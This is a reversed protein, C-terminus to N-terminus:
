VSEPEADGTTDATMREDIDLKEQVDSLDTELETIKETLMTQKERLAVFEHYLGRIALIAEAMLEKESMRVLREREEEIATREAEVRKQEERERALQEELKRARRGVQKRKYDDVTKGAIEKWKGAQDKVAEAHTKVTEVIKAM